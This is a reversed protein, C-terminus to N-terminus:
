DYLNRRLHNYEYLYRLMRVVKMDPYRIVLVSVYDRDFENLGCHHVIDEIEEMTYAGLTNTLDDIYIGMINFIKCMYMNDLVEEFDVCKLKASM